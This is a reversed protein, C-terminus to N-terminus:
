AAARTRRLSEAVSRGRAALKLRINSLHIHEIQGPPTPQGSVLSSAVGGWGRGGQASQAQPAPEARPALGDGADRTVKVTSMLCSATRGGDGRAPGLDVKMLAELRRHVDNPRARRSGRLRPRGLRAGLIPVGRRIVSRSGVGDVTVLSTLRRRPSGVLSQGPSGLRSVM